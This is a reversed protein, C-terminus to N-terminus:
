QGHPRLPCWPVTWLLIQLTWWRADGGRGWGAGGGGEGADVDGGGIGSGDEGGGTGAGDLAVARWWSLLRGGQGRM